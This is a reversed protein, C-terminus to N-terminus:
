LVVPVSVFVTNEKLFAVLITSTLAAVSNDNSSRILHNAIQYVM